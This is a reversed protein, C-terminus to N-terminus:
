TESTMMELFFAIINSSPLLAQRHHCFFCIFREVRSYVSSFSRTFAIALWLDELFLIIRLAFRAIILPARIRRMRVNTFFTSIAIAAPSAALARSARRRACGSICRPTERPTKCLFVTDRLIERKDARTFARAAYTHETSNAFRRSRSFLVLFTRYMSPVPGRTQANKPGKDAEDDRFRLYM